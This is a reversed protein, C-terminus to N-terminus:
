KAPPPSQGRRQAFLWAYFDPNNYTRVWCNHDADPYMTLRVNGGAAKLADVMEEAYRPSVVNDLAGHFVWTPVDKVLYAKKPDGGGCMPSIAAFREPHAIAEAWTGFGGMSLGTLYVRDPDVRYKAMVEDILDNVDATEWWSRPLGQPGIVICEQEPHAKLYQWPGWLGVMNVDLGREGSGHLFIMLPYRTDPHDAYGVPLQTLYRHEALGLKKRLSFWWDENKPYVEPANEHLGAFLIAASEADLISGERIARGTVFNAIAEPHANLVEPDIGVAEPATIELKVGTKWLDIDQAMRYLTVFRRHIQGEEGVVEVVAGYRGPSKAATVEKGDADFFRCKINFRGILDEVEAGDQFYCDPFKDGSFVYREFVLRKNYMEALRAYETNPLSVIALDKRGVRIKLAGYSKTRPPMPLTITAKAHGESVVLKASGLTHSDDVVKVTRGDLSPDTDIDIVVRHFLEYYGRAKAWGADPQGAASALAAMLSTMAIVSVLLSGHRLLDM